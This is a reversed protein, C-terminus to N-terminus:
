CTTQLVQLVRQQTDTDAGAPVRVMHGSNLVIELVSRTRPVDAPQPVETFVVANEAPARNMKEEGARRFRLMAALRDHGEAFVDGAVTVSEGLVRKVPFRGGDIEPTVGEIVVRPPTPAPDSRGRAREGAARPSRVIGDPHAADRM